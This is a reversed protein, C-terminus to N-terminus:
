ESCVLATLGQAGGIFEMKETMTSEARVYWPRMRGKERELM